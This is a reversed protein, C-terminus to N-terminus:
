DVMPIYVKYPKFDIRYMYIGYTDWNSALFYMRRGGDKMMGSNTYIGYYIQKGPNYPTPMQLTQKQSWPGKINPALYYSVEGGLSLPSPNSTFLM